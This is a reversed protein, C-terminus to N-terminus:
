CRRSAAGLVQAFHPMNMTSNGGASHGPGRRKGSGPALAFGASGPARLRARGKRRTAPLRCPKLEQCVPAQPVTHTHIPNRKAGAHNAM